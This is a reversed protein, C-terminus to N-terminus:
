GGVIAGVMSVFGGRAASAAPPPEPSRVWLTTSIASAVACIVSRTRLYAALLLSSARLPSLSNLMWLVEEVIGDVGDLFGGEALVVDDDAHILLM